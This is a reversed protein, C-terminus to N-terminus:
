LRWEERLLSTPLNAELGSMEKTFARYNFRFHFYWSYLTAGVHGTCLDLIRKSSSHM